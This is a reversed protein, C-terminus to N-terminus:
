VIKWRVRTCIIVCFILTCYDSALRPRSHATLISLSATNIVWCLWFKRSTSLVWIIGYMTIVNLFLASLIYLQTVFSCLVVSNHFSCFVISKTNALDWIFTTIIVLVRLAHFWIVMCVSLDSCNFNVVPSVAHPSRSSYIM